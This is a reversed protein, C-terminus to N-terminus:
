SAACPEALAEKITAIAREIPWQEATARARRGIQPISQASRLLFAIQEALDEVDGARHIFGNSGHEIRDTAACTADSALVVLEAAMAEIVAVGYPEHVPSPHILVDATRFLARLEDPELWGLYKVQDQLGLSEVLAKLAAEDPGIGAICYEFPMGGQKGALALARVAVDHGKLANKIRGSSVFRLRSGAGERPGPRPRAYAAVDIWYPFNVLRSAPAGMEKLSSVGAQGTGMIRAAGAFVWKLWASRLSAYWWPRRRTMDPADTWLAYTRRFLRLLTLLLQSTPHDWGAILFFAQPDRWALSVVHWDVRMFPEYFRAPYDKALASQWPHSAPVGTRYHVKFDIQLNRALHRFLYDNYPTPQWCLWHLRRRSPSRAM